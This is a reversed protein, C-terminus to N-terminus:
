PGPRGDDHHKSVAVRWPRVACWAGALDYDAQKTVLRRVSWVPGPGDAYGVDVLARADREPLSAGARHTLHDTLDKILTVSTRQKTFGIQEYLTLAGTPSDADVYMTAIDCGDAQAAALSRRILASAIGRGSAAETVDITAIYCERRGTAQRFADYEQAILVGAPNDGLYALFSFASRFQGSPAGRPLLTTTPKSPSSAGSGGSQALAM